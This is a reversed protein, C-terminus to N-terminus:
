MRPGANRLKDALWIWQSAVLNDPFNLSAADQRSLMRHDVYATDVALLQWHSTRLGFYSAKQGFATLLVGFYPRGGSYMEHNGNMAFSSDQSILHTAPDTMPWLKLFAETENRQGAYYIDGLHITIDPQVSRIQSAVNM